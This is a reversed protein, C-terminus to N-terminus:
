RCRTLRDPHVAVVAASQAPVRHVLEPRRRGRQRSLQRVRLAGRRVHRRRHRPVDSVRRRGGAVALSRDSGAHLRARRAKEALGRVQRLHSATNDRLEAESAFGGPEITPRFPDYWRGDSEWATEQPTFRDYARLLLQKLQAATYINGYRASFLGFGYSRHHEPSLFAPAPEVDILRYGEATLARGIHQAFCSGATGVAEDRSLRTRPSALGRIQEAAQSGVATKWFASGDLGIYPNMRAVSGIREGDDRRQPGQAGIRSLISGLDAGILPAGLCHCRSRENARRKRGM